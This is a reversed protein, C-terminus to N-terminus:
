RSIFTLEGNDLTFRGWCGNTVKPDDYQVLATFGSRSESTRLIDGSGCLMELSKWSMGIEPRSYTKRDQEKQRTKRDDTQVYFFIIFWLLAFLSLVILRPVNIKGGIITEKPTQKPLTVRKSAGTFM